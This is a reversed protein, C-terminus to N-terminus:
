PSAPLTLAEAGMARPRAVLPPVPPAEGSIVPQSPSRLVAIAVPYGNLLARLPARETHISAMAGAPGSVGSMAKARGAVIRLLSQEDLAGAWHLAALEGLSHGVGACATIGLRDM